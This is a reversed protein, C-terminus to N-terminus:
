QVLFGYAFVAIITLHILVEAYFSRASIKQKRVRYLKLIALCILFLLLIWNIAETIM